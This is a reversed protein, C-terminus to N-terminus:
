RAASSPPGCAEHGMSIGDSIAITTFQLPFGGAARVGEKARQALRDLPLNCPTLENFSSCVGVQTRDWDDDTMGVARLMARAPARTPGQTVEHSHPNRPNPPAM